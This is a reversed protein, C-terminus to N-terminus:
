QMIETVATSLQKPTMKGRIRKSIKGERTLFITEPISEVMFENAVGTAKGVPFTLRYQERFGAIAESGSM